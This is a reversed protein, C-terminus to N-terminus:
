SVAQAGRRGGGKMAVVVPSRHGLGTIDGADVIQVREFGAARLRTAIDRGYDRFVLVGLSGRIRDGHYVPELLYEIGAPGPRAREVTHEAGSLPVTFILEGGPRLVRYLEGFGRADDPVHEFVETSTCLDFARDAFSLSQLDECRVGERLQGPSADDFFESHVLEGVNQKLFEFLPGRSSAEYVRARDLEPWRQRLVSVIGLAIPSAGCRVCRTGLQDRQLRLYLTPGCIPCAGRTARLERWELSQAVFRLKELLGIDSGM